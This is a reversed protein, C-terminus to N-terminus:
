LCSVFLRVSPHIAVSSLAGKIPPPTTIVAPQDATHTRHSAGTRVQAVLMPCVSPRVSPCASMRVPPTTGTRRTHCHRYRQVHSFTRRPFHAATTTEVRCMVRPSSASGCVPVCQRQQHGSSASALGAVGQVLRVVHTTAHTDAPCRRTTLMYLPARVLQGPAARRRDQARGCGVVAADWLCRPWRQCKIVVVVDPDDPCVRLCVVYGLGLRDTPLGLV